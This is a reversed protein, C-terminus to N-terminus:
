LFSAEGSEPLDVDPDCSEESHPKPSVSVPKRRMADCEGM